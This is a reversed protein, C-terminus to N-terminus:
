AVEGRGGAHQAAVVAARMAEAKVAPCTFHYPIELLPVLQTMRRESVLFTVVADDVFVDVSSVPERKRVRFTSTVTASIRPTDGGSRQAPAPHPASPARRNYKTM